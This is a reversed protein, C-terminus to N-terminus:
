GEGGAFFPVEGALERRITAAHYLGPRQLLELFVQGETKLDPLPRVAWKMTHALGAYNVFTGAKEAFSAAPLVYRAVDSVPSPFLDQVILLPVKQLAQAQEVSIGWGLRPPSGITLYLGQVEGSTAARM